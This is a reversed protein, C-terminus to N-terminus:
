VGEKCKMEAARAVDMGEGKGGCVYGITVWKGCQAM